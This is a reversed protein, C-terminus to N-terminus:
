HATQKKVHSPLFYCCKAPTLMLILCYRYNEYLRQHKGVNRFYCTCWPMSLIWTLLSSFPPPHSVQLNCAAIKHGASKIEFANKKLM